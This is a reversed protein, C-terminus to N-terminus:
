NLFFSFKCKRCVRCCQRDGSGGSRASAEVEQEEQSGPGGGECEAFCDSLSLVEGASSWALRLVLLLSAASALTPNDLDRAIRNQEELYFSEKVAAYDFSPLLVLSLVFSQYEAPLACLLTMAALDDDM